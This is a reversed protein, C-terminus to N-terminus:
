KKGGKIAKRIAAFLVFYYKKFLEKRYVNLKSNEIGVDDFLVNIADIGKVIEIDNLIDAAILFDLLNSKAFDCNKLKKKSTERLQDLYEHFTNESDSIRVFGELRSVQSSTINIEKNLEKMKDKTKKVESLAQVAAIKSLYEGAIKLITSKVLEPVEVAKPKLYKAEDFKNKTIVERQLGFVIQGYGEHKREGIGTEQLKILEEIDNQSVILLLCSGAQFSVENPRKLKWVSVYNEIDESRLFTKKIESLGKIRERLYEELNTLSNTSYGNKDYLIVNSLFTLSVTGDNNLSIDNSLSDTDTLFSFQVKGYESSKSRGIRLQNLDSIKKYFDNICDDEGFITGEFTQNADISEYNFFKGSKAAGREYDREHHPSTSKNIKTKYINGNMLLGCGGLPKTQETSESFLLDYIANENNKEHQISFPLPYTAYENGEVTDTKYANSFIIKGNVFWDLFKQDDPKQQDFYKYLNEKKIYKAALAGLINIGPIFDKSPVMFQNGSESSIIVPNITKIQYKLKKM